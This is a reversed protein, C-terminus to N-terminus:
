FKTRVGFEDTTSKLRSRSLDISSTLGVNQGLALYLTKYNEITIFHIARKASDTMKEALIFDLLLEPQSCRKRGHKVCRIFNEVGCDDKGKLVEITRVIDKASVQKM